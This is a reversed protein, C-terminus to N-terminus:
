RNLSVTAYRRLIMVLLLTLSGTPERSVIRSVVMRTQGRASVDKMGVGIEVKMRFAVNQCFIKLRKKFM